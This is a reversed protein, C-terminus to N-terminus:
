SHCCRRSQGLPGQIYDPNWLLEPLTFVLAELWTMQWKTNFLVDARASLGNFAPASPGLGFGGLPGESGGSGMAGFVQIAEMVGPPAAWGVYTVAVGHCLEPQMACGKAELRLRSTPMGGVWEM